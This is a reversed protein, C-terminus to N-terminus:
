LRKRLHIYATEFGVAQNIALMKKNNTHVSTQL